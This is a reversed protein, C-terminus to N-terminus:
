LLTIVKKEACSQVAAEIIRMVRIGDGATVPMLTDATIAKYV